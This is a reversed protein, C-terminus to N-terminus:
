VSMINGNLFRQGRYERTTGSLFVTTTYRGFIQCLLQDNVLTIGNPSCLGCFTRHSSILNMPNYGGLFICVWDDSTTEKFGFPALVAM